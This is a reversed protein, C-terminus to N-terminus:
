GNGTEKSLASRARSVAAIHAADAEDMNRVPTGGLSVLLLNVHYASTDIVDILSKRLDVNDKELREARELAATLNAETTSLHTQLTTIANASRDLAKVWNELTGHSPWSPVPLSMIHTDGDTWLGEAMRSKTSWDLWSQVVGSITELPVVLEAYDGPVPHAVNEAKRFRELLAARAKALTSARAEVTKRGAEHYLAYAEAFEDLLREDGIAAASSQETATM